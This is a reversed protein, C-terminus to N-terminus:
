MDIRIAEAPNLKLAKRAPYISALVGTLIVMFIIQVFSEFGITPYVKASFGIAEFGEKYLASLDLGTNGTWWVLLYCLLTGIMAGTLGLFVTELMIMRFVRKKNMGIAMLMGLEKVRELVAMLMTNVIGFGLALLIIILFIFLFFDMAGSYMAAEPMITDWTQVDLAPNISRIQEAVLQDDNVSNLLVAIQNVQGSQLSAVSSIDTDRVFLNMGDFASNATKYVGVVRFADYAIHGDLAQFSLVIKRKLRYKIAAEKLRFSLRKGEKEGFLGILAHDFDEETRYSNGAISDLLPVVDRYKRNEGLRDLDESELRYFTLKLTKALKEGIVIPKRGDSEFFTGGNRVLSEAIGTVQRERDINIGNIMVGSANGSTSAMGLVKIRPSVAKVEPIQEIASIYDPADDITYKVENNELYRPDHVQIHSSENGIAQIIRTEFMGNMFAVMYIGGFLGLTFAVIVVLSRTKNRWVNKWSISWIM